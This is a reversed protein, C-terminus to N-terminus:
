NLSQSHLGSPKAVQAFCKGADAPQVKVLDGISVIGVLQKDDDVVPLRRIQMSAMNELVEDIADASNCYLLERTMVESAKAEPGLGCGIGRVAIDRDTVMGVLKDNKAVPISGLDKEAMKEAARRLTTDPTITCVDASMCQQVQM